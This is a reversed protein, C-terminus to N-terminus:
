FIFEFHKRPISCNNKFCNGVNVAQELSINEVFLPIVLEIKNSYKIIKIELIIKNNNDSVKFKQQPIHGPVSEGEPTIERPILLSSIEFSEM